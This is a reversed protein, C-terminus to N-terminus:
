ADPEVILYAVVSTDAGNSSLITFAPVRQVPLYKCGARHAVRRKTMLFIRSNATVRDNAVVKTGGVLTVVGMAADDGEVIAPSAKSM